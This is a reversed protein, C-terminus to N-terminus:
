LGLPIMGESAAGGGAVSIALSEVIAEATNRHTLITEDPSDRHAVSWARREWGKAIDGAQRKLIDAARNCLAAFAPEELPPHERTELVESTPPNYEATMFNTCHVMRAMGAAM